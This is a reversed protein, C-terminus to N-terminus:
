AGESRSGESDESSAKPEDSPNAGVAAAEPSPEEGETAADQALAEEPEPEAGDM